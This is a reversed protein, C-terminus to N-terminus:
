FTGLIPQNAARLLVSQGRENTLRVVVDVDVGPGWKPGDRLVTELVPTTEARNREERPSGSWVQDGFVVWATEAVVSTPVPTADAARVRIVAALPKGDPPSIPQFDRWLAAALTLTKGSITVSTPAAKLDDVPIPGPAAPAQRDCAIAAMVILGTITLRKMRM